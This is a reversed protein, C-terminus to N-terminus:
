KCSDTKSLMLMGGWGCVFVLRFCSVFDNYIILIEDNHMLTANKCWSYKTIDINYTIRVTINYIKHVCERGGFISLMEVLVVHHHIRTYMCM